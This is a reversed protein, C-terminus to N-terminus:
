DGAQRIRPRGRQIQPGRRLRDTFWGPATEIAPIRYTHYGDKGSVFVDTHTLLPEAAPSAAVSRVALTAIIAILALLEVLTFGLRPRWGPMRTVARVRNLDMPHKM